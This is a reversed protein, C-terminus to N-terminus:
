VNIFASVTTEYQACMGGNRKASTRVLTKQGKVGIKNQIFINIYRNINICIIIYIINYPFRTTCKIRINRIIYM